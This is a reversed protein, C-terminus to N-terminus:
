REAEACGRAVTKDTIWLQGILAQNASLPQFVSEINDASWVTVPEMGEGAIWHGDDTYSIGALPYKLSPGYGNFQVQGALDYITQLSDVLAATEPRRDAHLLIQAAMIRDTRACFALNIQEPRLGNSSLVAILGRGANDTDLIIVKTAPNIMPMKLRAIATQIQTPSLGQGRLQQTNIENLAKRAQDFTQGLLSRLGSAPATQFLLLALIAVATM